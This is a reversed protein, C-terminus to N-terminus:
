VPGNSRQEKGRCPLFFIRIDSLFFGPSHYGALGGAWSGDVEVDGIDHIQERESRQADIARCNQALTANRPTTGKQAYTRCDLIAIRSRVHVEFQLELMGFPQQALTEYAPSNQGGETIIYPSRSLIKATVQRPQRNTAKLTWTGYAFELEVCVASLGRKLFGEISSKVKLV